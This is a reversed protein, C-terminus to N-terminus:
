IEDAEFEAKTRIRYLKDVPMVAVIGDGPSGVHAAELITSVILDVRSAKAFINLKANTVLWDQKYFNAYEGYGKVPSVSIGMVGISKLKEEVAELVSTRVIAVINKFEM